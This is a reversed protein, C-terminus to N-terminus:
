NLSSQNLKCNEGHWRIYNTIDFTKKCYICCIKPPRLSVANPIENRFINLTNDFITWNKIIKHNGKTLHNIESPTIKSYKQFENITILLIENTIVNKFKYITPNKYGNSRNRYAGNNSCTKCCFRQKINTSEFTNSCYECKIIHQIPKLNYRSCKISCYQKNENKSTFKSTCIPCSKEYIIPIKRIGTNGDGGDTRNLLIGTGLDKRGFWRIMRRELALAGVESLNTELFIIYHKNKPVSVGKHYDYALTDKGKGIYYPTGAKAVNSDKSRIYAYTYYILNSSM